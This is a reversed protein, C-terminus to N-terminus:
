QGRNDSRGDTGEVDSHVRQPGRGGRCYETGEM